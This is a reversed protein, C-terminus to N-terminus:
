ATIKEKVKKHMRKRILPINKNVLELIQEHYQTNDNHKGRCQVVQMSKLYIEVTELKKNNMQASLILSDPKLYYQNSFVCHKMTKGEDLFEDISELVRVTIKGDSFVMGFFMKRMEIFKKEDEIAKLKRREEAEQERVLRERELIAHKKSSLKDHERKLNKPCVYKANLRDKRFYVLLDMYDLWISADPIKYKNRICIKISQWFADIKWSHEVYYKLLSFHKAKILTEAKSDTLLLIFLRFPSLGHFGNRMGNRKIIPLIKKRPYIANPLLNYCTAGRQSRIELPSSWCWSNNYSYFMNMTRAITEYKGDPNLWRQVIEQIAYHPKQGRKYYGVVDFFRVIQYGKM